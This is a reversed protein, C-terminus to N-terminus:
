LEYARLLILFLAETVKQEYKSASYVSAIDQFLIEESGSGEFIPVESAAMVPLVGFSFSLGALVGIFDRPNGM